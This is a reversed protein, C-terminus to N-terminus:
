LGHPVSRYSSSFTPSSKSLFSVMPFVPPRRKYKEGWQFLADVATSNMWQNTSTSNPIDSQWKMGQIAKQGPIDTINTTAGPWETYVMPTLEAKTVDACIVNVSPSPVSAKISYGGVGDLENPQMIGNKPDRAAAFIGAHPMAMTVNTVIRRFQESNASMNSPMIWNGQVTTNDFLMAVAQPRDTINPSAGTGNKNLIAWTEM